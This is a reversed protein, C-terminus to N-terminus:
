AKMHVLIVSEFEAPRWSALIRDELYVGLHHIGRSPTQLILGSAVPTYCSLAWGLNLPKLLMTRFLRPADLQCSVPIGTM